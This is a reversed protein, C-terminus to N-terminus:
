KDDGERKKRGRDEIRNKEIRNDYAVAPNSPYM